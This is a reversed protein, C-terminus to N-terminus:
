NNWYVNRSVTKLTPCSISSKRIHKKQKRGWRSLLSTKKQKRRPNKRKLRQTKGPIETRGDRNKKIRKKSQVFRSYEQKSEECSFVKRKFYISQSNDYDMDSSETACIALKSMKRYMLYIPVSPIENIWEHADSILHRSMQSYWTGVILLITAFKRFFRRTPNM